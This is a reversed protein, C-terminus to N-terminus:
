LKIFRKKYYDAIAQRCKITGSYPPYRHYKRQLVAQQMVQIIEQSTPLDPDGIGFDILDIGQYAAKQKTEDIKAFLYPPIAKVRDAVDIKFNSM